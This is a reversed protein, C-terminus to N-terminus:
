PGPKTAAFYTGKLVTGDPTKLDVVRPSNAEANRVFLLVALLLFIQTERVPFFHISKMEPCRKQSAFGWSLTASTPPIGRVLPQVCFGAQTCGAVAVILACAATRANLQAGM